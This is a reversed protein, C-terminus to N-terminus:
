DRFQGMSVVKFKGLTQGVHTVAAFLDALSFKRSVTLFRGAGPTGMSKTQLDKFKECAHHVTARDEKSFLKSFVLPEESWSNLYNDIISSAVEPTLRHEV